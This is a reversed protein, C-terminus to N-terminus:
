IEGRYAKTKLNLQHILNKFDNIITKRNYNDWSKERQVGRGMGHGVGVTLGWVQGYEHTM